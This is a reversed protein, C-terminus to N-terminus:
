TAPPYIRVSNYELGDNGHNDVADIAVTQSVNPTVITVFSTNTTNNVIMSNVSLDYGFIGSADAGPSWAVRYRYRGDAHKGLNTATPVGAQTPRVQEILSGPATTGTVGASQAGIQNRGNVAAVTYRYSTAPSMQWRNTLKTGNEAATNGANSGNRYVIYASAGTVPEWALSVAFSTAGTVRLGTPAALGSTPKTGGGGGGKGAYAQDAVAMMALASAGFAMM